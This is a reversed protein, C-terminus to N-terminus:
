TGTQKYTKFRGWVWQHKFITTEDIEAIGELQSVPLRAMEERFLRVVRQGTKIHRQHFRGLDSGSIRGKLSVLKIGQKWENDSL